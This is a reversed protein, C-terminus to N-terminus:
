QYGRLGWSHLGLSRRILM